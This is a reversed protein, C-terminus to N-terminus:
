VSRGPEHYFFPCSDIPNRTGDPGPDCFCVGDIGSLPSNGECDNDGTLTFLSIWIGFSHGPRYNFSTLEAM